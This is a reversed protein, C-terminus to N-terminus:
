SKIYIFSVFMTDISSSKAIRQRKLLSGPKGVLCDDLHRFTFEEESCEFMKECSPCKIASSKTLVPQMTSSVIEVDDVSMNNREIVVSTGALEVQEQLKKLSALVDDLLRNNRLQHTEAITQCTPCKKIPGLQQSHAQRICLACFNHSCPLIMATRFFEKCIPCKLQESMEGIIKNMIM